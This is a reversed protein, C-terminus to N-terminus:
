KAPAPVLAKIHAPLDFIAADVKNAEEIVITITVENTGARQIMKTPMLVGAMPKYDQAIMTSEITGMPTEVFQQSGLLLGSEKDFYERTEDGSNRVLHLKWAPRGEFTTDAVVDMSKYNAAEHLENNPDARMKMQDLEKGSLLRPGQMPDIAWATTGDYGQLIEGIGQLTTKSVLKNPMQSSEVDAKMGQAPVDVTAVVHLSKRGLVADRGGIAKVYSDIVQRASPLTTSSSTTAAKTAAPKTAPKAGGKAAQATLAAPLTALCAGLALSQFLSRRAIM